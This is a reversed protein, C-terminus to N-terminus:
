LTAIRNADWDFVINLLDVFFVLVLFSKIRNDRLAFTYNGTFSTHYELVSSIQSAKELIPNLEKKKKRKFALLCMSSNGTGYRGYQTIHLSNNVELYRYPVTPLAPVRDTRNQQTSGEHRRQRRELLM